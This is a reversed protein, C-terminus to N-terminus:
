NNQKCSSAHCWGTSAMHGESINWIRTKLFLKHVDEVVNARALDINRNAPAVINKQEKINKEVVKDFREVM